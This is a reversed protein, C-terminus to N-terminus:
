LIAEIDSEQFCYEAVCFDCTVSVQGDERVMKRLEDAGLLLLARIVRERSCNCSFRVPKEELVTFEFDQLLTSLVHMPNPNKQFEEDLSPLGEIARELKEIEEPKAGGMIQVLFGGASRVKGNVVKVSIGVASPVQESQSWYFTLDKSFHGTVLPVTGVFPTAEKGPASRGKLWLVSLIGDGWPGTAPNNSPISIKRKIRKARKEAASEREIIYGRATGDPYADVFAHALNKSGSVKINVRDEDSSYSAFFLSGILIEGLATAAADSLEHRDLNNQVLETAQIAVGRIGGGASICKVWKSKETAM